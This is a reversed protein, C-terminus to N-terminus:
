NRRVKTAATASDNVPNSDDGTSDVTATWSIKSPRQGPVAWLWEVEFTEGDTLDTFSELMDATPEKLGDRTLVDTMPPIDSAAADDAMDMAAPGLLMKM